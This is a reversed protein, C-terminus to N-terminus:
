MWEVIRWFTIYDVFIQYSRLKNELFKREFSYVKSCCFRSSTRGNVNFNVSRSKRSKYYNNSNRYLDCNQVSKWSICITPTPGCMSSCNNKKRPFLRDLLVVSMPSFTGWFRKKPSENLWYPPKQLFFKLATNPVGNGMSFTIIMKTMWCEMRQFITM